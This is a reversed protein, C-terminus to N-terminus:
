DICTIVLLEELENNMLSEYIYKDSYIKITAQELNNKLQRLDDIRYSTYDMGKTMYIIDIVETSPIPKKLPLDLVKIPISEIFKNSPDMKGHFAWIVDGLPSCFKVLISEYIGAIENFSLTKGENIKHRIDELFSLYVEIREDIKVEVFNLLFDTFEENEKYRETKLDYELEDLFPKLEETKGSEKILILKEAYELYKKKYFIQYSFYHDQFIKSM